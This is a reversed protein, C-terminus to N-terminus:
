DRPLKLYDLYARSSWRGVAKIEGESFGIVGPLSAIGARFSHSTIKGVRYDLYKGWSDKLITNFRKGTLPLGQDDIFLLYSKITHAAVARWNSFARLPCLPGGSEYVDVITDAGVRDTKPSKIKVQLISVKKGAVKITKLNVDRGLLTFNPDFQSSTWSLLEHIRFAGNFALAAVSWVLHKMERSLSSEKLDLKFLKMSTPTVPLRVPKEEVPKQCPRHQNSWDTTTPNPSSASNPNPDRTSTASPM